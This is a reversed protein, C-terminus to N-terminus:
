TIALRRECILFTGYGQHHIGKDWLTPRREQNYQNDRIKNSGIERGRPVQSSTTSRLVVTTCQAPALSNIMTGVENSVEQTEETTEAMSTM